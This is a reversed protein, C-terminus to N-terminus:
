IGAGGEVRWVDEYRNEETVGIQLIKHDRVRITVVGDKLQHITDSINKIIADNIINKGPRQETKSM